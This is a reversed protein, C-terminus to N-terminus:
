QVRISPPASPTVVAPAASPAAASFSWGRYRAVTRWAFDQLRSAMDVPVEPFDVGWRTKTRGTAGVPSREYISAMVVCALYYNGLDTMHVDDKFLQSRSTIGQFSGGEAAFVLDRLAINAPIIEVSVSRGHSDREIQEIRDTVREFFALENAIQSTWEQGNHWSSGIGEWQTFYFARGQLNRSLFVNLFNDFDQPTSGLNTPDGPNIIPNNTQTIVLADYLGNATGAAIADCAFELPPYQGTFTSSSCNIWHGRIPTGPNVHVASNVSLGQLSRVMSTVMDPMDYNILSHGVYVINAAARPQAAADVASSGLGLVCTLALIATRVGPLREAVNNTKIM